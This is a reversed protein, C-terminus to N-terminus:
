LLMSSAISLTEPVLRLVKSGEYRSLAGALAENFRRPRAAVISYGVAPEVMTSFTGAAPISRV